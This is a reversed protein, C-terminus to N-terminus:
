WLLIAHSVRRNEAEVEALELADAAHHVGGGAAVAELRDRRRRRVGRVLSEGTPTGRFARQSWLTMLDPRLSRADLAQQVEARYVPNMLIVADPRYDVLADPSVIRQGTGPLFTDRKRPNIDVVLPIRDDTIGLTSLFGVAKSANAPPL